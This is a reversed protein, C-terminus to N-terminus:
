ILNTFSIVIINKAKIFIFIRPIKNPKTKTKQKQDKLIKKKTWKHKENSVISFQINEMKLCLYEIMPWKFTDNEKCIVNFFGLFVSKLWLWSTTDLSIKEKSVFIFILIWFRCIIVYFLYIIYIYHYLLIILSNSTTLLSNVITLEKFLVEANTKRFVLLVFKFWISM